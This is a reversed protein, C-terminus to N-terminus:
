SSLNGSSRKITDNTLCLMVYHSIYQVPVQIFPSRIIDYRLIQHISLKVALSNKSYITIFNSFGIIFKIQPEYWIIQRHDLAPHNWCKIRSRSVSNEAKRVGNLHNGNSRALSQFYFMVGSQVM